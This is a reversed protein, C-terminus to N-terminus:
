ARGDIARVALDVAMHLNAHERLFEIPTPVRAGCRACKAKLVVGGCTAPMGEADFAFIVSNGDFDQVLFERRPSKWGEPLEM